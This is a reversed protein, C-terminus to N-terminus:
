WWSNTTTGNMLRIFYLHKNEFYDPFTANPGSNVPKFNFDSFITFKSDNLHNIMDNPYSLLLKTFLYTSEFGKFSMDTPRSKYRKLYGNTLIRSYTDTKENYYPSTFYIPFDEFDNKGTLTKFGDWNPMGFLKIPYSSSLDFAATTIQGAFSEDLSGGIIINQKTSDLSKKLKDSSFTSDINIVKYKFLEKGEQENKMKFYAAVKDEQAGKKRLLIIKDAETGHNEMIYTFIAECHAKLTSNLIVVYPNQTIGGDNPYTASIFPINKKQAFAALQKFEVDKVSGIILDLSDLKGNKILTPIPEHYSKTDFFHADVDNNFIVMSDLAIQAGQIFDMGPMAFKPFGTKMKFSGAANFVSDLFLPAFIGIHHKKLSITSDQQAFTNQLQAFFLVFLLILKHVYIKKM